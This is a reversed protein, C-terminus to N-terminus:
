ATPTALREAFGPGDLCHQRPGPLVRRGSRRLRARRPLHSLLLDPRRRPRDVSGLEARDRQRLRPQRGARRVRQDRGRVRQPESAPEPPQQGGGRAPGPDHSARGRPAAVPRRTWGVVQYYLPSSGPANDDTCQPAEVFSGSQGVCTVQSWPGTSSPGRYVRYGLLDCEQNPKWWLDVSNGAGNRGGELDAPAQPLARNLVVTVAKPNGSRGQDDFADAQVIYTCDHFYTPSSLNWTFTWNRDSAGVRSANGQPDGNVSWEM